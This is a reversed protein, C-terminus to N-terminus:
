DRFEVEEQDCLPCNGQLILRCEDCYVATCANGNSMGPCKTLKISSYKGQREECSSCEQQERPPICKTICPCQSVLWTSLRFKEKMASEKHASKVEQRLFRQRAIRRHRITKHLYEMRATEQEPYYYAAIKRRMRMGYGRLIVFCIALIYLVLFVFVYEDTPPAPSPICRELKMESLFYEDIDIGKFISRYFSAILGTGKVNVKLRSKASLDVEFQGFTHILNLIYYLFHDFLVVVICFIAHLFVQTLGIKCNDFEQKTLKLSRTYIYESQETKKLPLLSEEGDDQKRKDLENFEKTIYMNDYGDKAMYNKFYLFAQLFMLVLSLSLVYKVIRMFTQFSIVKSDIDENIQGQVTNIEKSNNSEYSFDGEVKVDVKFYSEASDLTSKMQKSVEVFNGGIKLSDCLSSLTNFNSCQTLCEGRLNIPFTPLQSCFDRCEQNAKAIPRICDQYLSDLNDNVAVFDKELADAAVKLDNFDIVLNNKINQLAERQQDVYKGIHKVPETLQQQLQKSQNAILDIVCSMSNGTEKANHTINLIPGTLMIAFIVSFLVARGKGTFFNPFVLATICRCTPFLALGICIFLTCILACIGAVLKSYGFSYLLLIFLLGGIVLGSFAGFAAKMRKNEDRGSHFLMDTSAMIAGLKETKFNHLKNSQNDEPAFKVKDLASKNGGLDLERSDQSSEFTSEQWSVVSEPISMSHHVAPYYPMTTETSSQAIKSIEEESYGSDQAM